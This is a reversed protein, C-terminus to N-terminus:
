WVKKSSMLPCCIANWVEWLKSTIFSDIKALGTNFSLNIRVFDYVVYYWSCKFQRVHYKSQLFVVLINYVLRQSSHFVLDTPM